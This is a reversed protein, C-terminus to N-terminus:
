GQFSLDSLQVALFMIKAGVEATQFFNIEFQTCLPFIFTLSVLSTDLPGLALDIRTVVLKVVVKALRLYAAMCNHVDQATTIKYGREWAKGMGFPFSPPAPLSALSRTRQTHTNHGTATLVTKQVCKSSFSPGLQM